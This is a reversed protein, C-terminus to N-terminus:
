ILFTPVTSDFCLDDVTTLTILNNFNFKKTAEGLFEVYKAIIAPKMEVLPAYWIIGCRDRSPNLNEQKVLTRDLNKWYAIKLAVNNPIGNAVDFALSAAELSIALGSLGFKRFM